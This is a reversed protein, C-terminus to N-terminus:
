NVKFRLEVRFQDGDIKIGFRGGCAETFSQAISLGLGSGETSRSRDGRSFRQLIEDEDFDMEYNATNKITMVAVAGADCVELDVFVRSGVLSYKLTNSILNQLVRHLKRGDSVVYVPQEPVNVRFALGSADIREEMDALAQEILRRLDIREMDLAINDSTAKSLDFLDQILNQLRETKTALVGIYDNVHEPLNEEKSLLEVYSVISTLPTKLDHSVNTILDVKMRESRMKENVALSMGEQISNLCHAARYMDSDPAVELKTAMDGNKVLEIHDVLRGMDEVTKGYRRLYRYIFYFGAGVLLLIIMFALLVTTGSRSLAMMFLFASFLALVAETLVLAYARKLMGKQWPYKREYRRYRELLSNLSNHTFFGKGSFRLDVLMVYFWWFALIVVGGGFATRFLGGLYYGGLLSRGRSVDHATIAALFMVALSILAKVEFWVRGSWSAIQRDFLRKERRLVIGRALLGSGLILVGIYAWRIILLFRQEEYYWSSGYPNKVLVDRVALLVRTRALRDPDGSYTAPDPVLGRYGSDLRQIDVPEGQDLVHVKEGDFYWCYDYGASLVPLNDPGLITSLDEHMNELVFGTDPNSAYYKLNEGEGALLSAAYDQMRFRADTHMDASADAHIDESADASPEDAASLLLGFYMATRERFFRSDRYDTFFAKFERWNGDAYTLGAVAAVLCCGVLTVGLVFSLWAGFPKYRKSKTDM